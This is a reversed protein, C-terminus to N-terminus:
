DTIFKYGKGHITLIHRPNHPDDEIKKRLKLIHNDVTRTTPFVKYGWVEDLMRERSVTFDKNEILLKMIEFERPTLEICKGGKTAQYHVFDIEIDSFRYIGIGKRREQRRLIARIRALLEGIGFPKTIYDDAGAELGIVKDIEQGRATLMIVPINIKNDRLKKCVDLGDVDPLMLDLIILDPNEMQAKGLGELGTTSTIVVYGEYTLNDKLGMVMDPEDEIILIKDRAMM